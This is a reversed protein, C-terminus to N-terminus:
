QHRTLYACLADLDTDSIETKRFPAMMAFGRRVFHRIFPATLDRRQELLAPLSGNYKAQLGLTGPRDPGAGHCAQCWSQFVQRGRELLARDAPAAPAAVPVMAIMATLLLATIRNM